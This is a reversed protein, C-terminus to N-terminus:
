LFCPLACVVVILELIKCIAPLLGLEFVKLSHRGDHVYSRYLAGSLDATLADSLPSRGSWGHHCAVVSGCKPLRPKDCHVTTQEEQKCQLDHRTWIKIKWSPPHLLMAQGRAGLLVDNHARVVSARVVRKDARSDSPRPEQPFAACRAGCVRHVKSGGAGCAPTQQCARSPRMRVRTSTTSPSPSSSCGSPLGHVNLLDDGRTNLLSQNYLRKCVCSASPAQDALVRLVVKGIEAATSECVIVTRRVTKLWLLM